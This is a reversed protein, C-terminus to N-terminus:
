IKELLCSIMQTTRQNGIWQPLTQELIGHLDYTFSYIYTYTYMYIYVYIYVYIYMYIYM